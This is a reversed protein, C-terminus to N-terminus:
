DITPSPEMPAESTRGLPFREDPHLLTRGQVGALVMQALLAVVFGVVNGIVPYLLFHVDTRKTLFWIAIASSLWGIVAAAPRIRIPLFALAMLALVGTTTFSMVMSWMDQADKGLRWFVVAMGMAALGSVVTLGRIVWLYHADPRDKVWFRRYFDEVCVTAGSNMIASITSMAAAFIAALVLGRAGAPLTTAIFHPYVADPKLGEVAEPGSAQYYVFLAAGIFYFIFGLPIYGLISIWVSKNAERTSATAVYRQTMDQQTGYIRITEFLTQLILWWTTLKTLDTSPEWMRFKHHLAALGLFDGGALSTGWLIYVVSLVAGLTFIVVQIADTWIVAEIGGYVCYAITVLGMVAISYTIDTKTIESFALAPLYLTLGARGTSLALFCLSALVRAVVHIRQELFHYVSVVGAARYWPLVFRTIVVATVILFPLQVAWLWDDGGFAKGPLAMMTLASLYAGLLSLGVLLSGMRGAATQYGVTDKVRKGSWWGIALMGILYAFIVVWDLVGFASGGDDM